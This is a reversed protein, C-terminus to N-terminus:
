RAPRFDLVTPALHSALPLLDALAPVRGTVLPLYAATVPTGTELDVGRWGEATRVELWTRRGWGGRGDAVLGSAFRVSHGRQAILAAAQRSGSLLGAGLRARAAELAPLLGEPLPRRDATVTVTDGAVTLGDDAPLLSATGPRLLARMTGWPAAAAAARRMGPLDPTRPASDSLARRYERNAVEFPLRELALGPRLAGALPLGREDTWLDLHGAEDRIRWARVTDTVVLAATGDPLTTSSDRVVAVTEAAIRLRVPEAAARFPDLRVADREAGARPPALFVTALGLVAPIGAASARARVTDRAIGGRRSLQTIALLSDGSAAVHLSDADGLTRTASFRAFRLGRSLVTFERQFVRQPVGDADFRLDLFSEVTVATPTTDITVSAFGVRAGDLSVAYYAAAPSVAAVVERDPDPPRLYERQVLAALSAGWALLIAGAVVRRSLM